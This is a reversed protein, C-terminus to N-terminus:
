EANAAQEKIRDIATKIDVVALAIDADSAKSAITNAERLMEQAVFDLKRGIPESTQCTRLFEGLHATLRSIEEAIDSREAFIAVERALSEEDIKIQARAVLEEVRETLRKHYLQVVEDSRTSIGALKTEIIRVNARLDELIILGEQQRMKMLAETAEEILALLGEATREVLEEPPPPTCVGPLQLLSGLDLRLMPNAEVELPRLQDLYNLLATANVQWAAQDDPLKMRVVLTISGRQLRTRLAQEIKTELSQLSEPIRMAIKLYRNNVSRIEVAYEAGQVQGSAAGFGTMSRLM